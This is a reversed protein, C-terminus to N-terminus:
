GGLIHSAGFLDARSHSMAEAALGASRNSRGCSSFMQKQCFFCQGCSLPFPVVSRGGKKLAARNDAGFEVVEGMTEHGLVDGREMTPM